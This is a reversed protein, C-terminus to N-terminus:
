ISHCRGLGAADGGPLPPRPNFCAPLCRHSALAQCRGGAVPPTSQFQSLCVLCCDIITCRGGAVPPTSQFASTKARTGTPLPMAGRCRPAHISVEDGRGAERGVPADGGPLPPRPNFCFGELEVTYRFEADGGPLPPRPNFSRLTRRRRPLHHCRGGAVPPTSQFMVLTLALVTWDRADGGPLQSANPM